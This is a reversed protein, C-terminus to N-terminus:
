KAYCTVVTEPGKGTDPRATFVRIKYKLDSKPGQARLASPLSPGAGLAVRSVGAIRSPKARSRLCVLASGAAEHLPADRCDRFTISPAACCCPAKGRRVCSALLRHRCGVLVM